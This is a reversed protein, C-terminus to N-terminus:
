NCYTKTSTEKPEDQKPGETRRTGPYRNGKEIDPFFNGPMIIDFVCQVRKETEEGESVWMTHINAHM